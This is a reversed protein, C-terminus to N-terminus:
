FPLFRIKRARYEIYAHEIVGPENKGKEKIAEHQMM